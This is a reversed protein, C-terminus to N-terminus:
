RYKNAKNKTKRPEVESIKKKIKNIKKNNVKILHKFEDSDTSEGTITDFEERFKQYEEDYKVDIPLKPHTKLYDRHWASDYRKGDKEAIKSYEDDVRDGLRNIANLRKVGEKLKNNAAELKSARHSLVPLPSSPGKKAASGGSGSTFQGNKPDHKPQFETDLSMSAPGSGFLHRIRQVTGQRHIHITPKM